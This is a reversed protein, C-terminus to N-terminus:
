GYESNKSLWERIETIQEEEQIRTLYVRNGDSVNFNITIEDEDDIIHTIHDLNFYENGIKLLNM